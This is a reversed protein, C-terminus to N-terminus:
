KKAEAKIGTVTNLKEIEAKLKEFEEKSVIQKYANLENKTENLQRSLEQIASISLTSLAEYDVVRFDNVQRGYVFVKGEDALNVKFSNADAKLVEAIETRKDFILKVKEGAKLNNPVTVIGGKIEAIRFIDPVEDKIKSVATPYVTELEQAILKKHIRNDKGITDIFKYDKIRIGLLTNLDNANNSVGIVKKIRADSTADIESCIIRGSARISVSVSGSSGTNNGAGGTTLYGYNTYSTTATGNVDLPFSPDIGIGVSGGSVRVNGLFYGAWNTTAGAAYGFVGYNVAPGANAASGYVGYRSGATGNASGYVGIATSTYTSADAVGNVGIYGGHFEGGYGTGPSNVSSSYIGYNNTAGSASFYGGYNTTGTGIANGYVAYGSGTVINGYKGGYLGYQSGGAGTSQNIGVSANDNAGSGTTYAAVGYNSASSGANFYGGYNTGTGGTSNGYVGYNMNSAGSANFYGGYNWNPSGTNIVSSYLGYATHSANANAGSRSINLVTSSGSGTGATSASSLNLLTGSTLSSSSLAFANASTVSNFTFATTNAGHALSLNATPAAIQDWRVLGSTSSWVPAGAGGSTLVNGFVGAGNNMLKSGDAYIIGGSTVGLSGNNTGGNAIPLPSTISITGTSLSLPSVATVVGASGTAGTAGNAGAPGTAGTAGTAGNTGNTGAAGTAGTAGNTGNTGNTGNIGAPGTAGNAGAAGTAGQAGTAGNAGASGTPGTAGNAGAPGTAGTAGNAGAPGMTGTAGTPGPTGNSSYLAYPVSLLQSTGMNQFGSGFDVEQQMYKAGTGWNITSFNGQVVAGQGINVSFLGFQNTTVSFTEQYLITGTPNIDHITARVTLATTVLENGSADRAVAQYKFSQPAQASASSLAVAIVSLTFFKKM